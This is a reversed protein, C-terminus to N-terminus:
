NCGNGFIGLECLEKYNGATIEVLRATPHETQLFNEFQAWSDFFENRCPWIVCTANVGIAPEYDYYIVLETTM